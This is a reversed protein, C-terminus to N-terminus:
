MGGSSPRLRDVIRPRTVLLSPRGQAFLMPLVENQYGALMHAAIQLGLDAGRVDHLLAQKFGL